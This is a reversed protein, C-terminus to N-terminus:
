SAQRTKHRNKIRKVTKVEGGRFNSILKNLYLIPRMNSTLFDV